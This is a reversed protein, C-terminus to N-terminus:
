WANKRSLFIQKGDPLYDARLGLPYGWGKYDLTFGSIARYDILDSERIFKIHKKVENHNAFKKQSVLHIYPASGNFNTLDKLWHYPANFSNNYMYGHLRLFNSTKELRMLEDIYIKSQATIQNNSIEKLTLCIKSQDKIWEFIKDKKLQYNKAFNSKDNIFKDELIIPKNPFHRSIFGSIAKSGLSSSFNNSIKEVSKKNLKKYRKEIKECLGYLYGKVNELKELVRKEQLMLENDQVYFIYEGASNDREVVSYRNGEGGISNNLIASYKRIANIEAVLGLIENEFQGIVEFDNLFGFRRLEVHVKNKSGSMAANLHQNLREKPEQTTFGIYVSGGESPISLKYVYCECEPVGAELAEAIPLLYSNEWNNTSKM